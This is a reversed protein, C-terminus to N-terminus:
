YHLCNLSVKPTAPTAEPVSSANDLEIDDDSTIIAKSKSENRPHKAKLAASGTSM